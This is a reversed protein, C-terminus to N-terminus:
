SCRRRRLAAGACDPARSVHPADDNGFTQHWWGACIVGLSKPESM